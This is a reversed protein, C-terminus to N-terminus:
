TDHAVSRLRLVPPADVPSANKAGPFTLPISSLMLFDSPAKTDIQSLMFLPM